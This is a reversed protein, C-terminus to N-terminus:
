KRKKKPPQKKPSCHSCVFSTMIQDWNGLNGRSKFGICMPCYWDECKDCSVADTFNKDNLDSIMFDCEVCHWAHRHKRDHLVCCWDEKKM